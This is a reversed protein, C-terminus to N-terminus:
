CFSNPNSSNCFDKNLKQLTINDQISVNAGYVLMPMRISVARLISIATKKQERAEKLRKLSEKEEESLEQKQKKKREVDEAKKTQLDTM